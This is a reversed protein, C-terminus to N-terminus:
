QEEEVKPKEAAVIAALRASIFSDMQKEDVIKALKKMTEPDTLAEGLLDVVRPDPNAKLGVHKLLARRVAGVMMLSHGAPLMTTGQAAVFSAGLQAAENNVEERISSIAEKSTINTRTRELVEAMDDAEAKTIVKSKVLPGRIKAFRDIAMPTATAKEAYKPHLIGMVEKRVSGRFEAGKGADTLRKNLASFQQGSQPDKLMTNITKEPAKEYARVATKALGKYGKRASRKTKGATEKQAAKAKTLGKQADKAETAAAGSATTATTATAEKRALGSLKGKIGPYESLLDAHDDIFKQAPVNKANFQATVYDELAADMDPDSAKRYIRATEAGKGGKIGAPTLLTEPATTKLKLPDYIDHMKKTASVAKPHASILSSIHDDVVNLLQRGEGALMQQQGMTEANHLTTSLESRLFQLENAPLSDPLADVQAVFGSYKKAFARGSPYDLNPHLTLVKATLKDKLAATSIDPHDDIVKWLEDPGGESGKFAKRSATATDHMQKSAEGPRLAGATLGERGALAATNAQEAALAAQQARAQTLGAQAEVPAVKDAATQTRNARSERIKKQTAQVLGGAARQAGATDDVGGLLSETAGATRATREAEAALIRANARPSKPQAYNIAGQLTRDGGLVQAATGGEEIAQPSSFKEALKAIPSTARSDGPALWSEPTPAAGRAQYPPPSDVTNMNIIQGARQATDTAKPTMLKAGAPGGLLSGIMAAVPEAYGTGTREDIERGAVQGVTGGAAASVDPLISRGKTALSGAKLLARPTYGLLEGAFLASDHTKSEGPPVSRGTLTELAGEPLFESPKTLDSQSKMAKSAIARAVTGMMTPQPMKKNALDLGQSILGGAEQPFDVTNKVVRPLIKAYDKAYDLKTSEGGPTVDEPLPEVPAASYEEWPKRQYEEWPKM